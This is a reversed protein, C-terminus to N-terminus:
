RVHCFGEQGRQSKILIEREELSRQLKGVPEAVMKVGKKESYIGMLM